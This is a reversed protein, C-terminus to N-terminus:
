PISPAPVCCFCADEQQGKFCHWRAKIQSAASSSVVETSVASPIATTGLEFEAASVPLAHLSPSNVTNCSASVPPVLEPQVPTIWVPDVTNISIVNQEFHLHSGRQAKPYSMIRTTLLKNLHWHLCYVDEGSQVLTGSTTDEARLQVNAAMAVILEATHVAGKLVFYRPGREEIPSWDFCNNQHRQLMQLLFALTHQQGAM